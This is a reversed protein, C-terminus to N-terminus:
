RLNHTFKISIFCFSLYPPHQHSALPLFCYPAFNCIDFNQPIVSMACVVAFWGQIGLVCWKELTLNGMTVVSSTQRVTRLIGYKVPKLCDCRWASKSGKALDNQQNEETLFLFFKPIYGWIACDFRKLWARRRLQDTVHCPRDNKCAEDLM